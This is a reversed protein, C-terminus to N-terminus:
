LLKSLAIVEVRTLQALEIAEDDQGWHEAQYDFDLRSLEYATEALLAGKMVALALIASGYVANLHALLTLGLDDFGASIESVRKLAKKDQELAVIGQRTKLDVGQERAWDLWENWKESQLLALSQPFESRYCLLDTGAYKTVEAVLMDRNEPTRELAVNYLRTVPMLHPKIIEDQAEWEAAVLEAHPKSKAILPLKGPTKLTRGDLLVTWGGDAKATGVTKYFRKTKPKSM